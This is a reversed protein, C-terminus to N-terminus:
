AIVLSRRTQFEDSLKKLLERPIRHDLDLENRFAMETLKVLIRFMEPTISMREVIQNDNGLFLAMDKLVAYFEPDSRMFSTEQDHYHYLQDQYCEGLYNRLYSGYSEPLQESGRVLEQYYVAKIPLQVPCIRDSKAVYVIVKKYETGDIDVSVSKKTYHDPYGERRDLYQEAKDSIEYLYGYLSSNGQKQINAYAHLHDSALKNLRFVYGNLCAIGLLVFEDAYGDTTIRGQYDMCSGYAFYLKKSTSRTSM